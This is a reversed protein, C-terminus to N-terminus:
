SGGGAPRGGNLFAFQRPAWRALLIGIGMGLGVTLLVSAAYHLLMWGQTPAPVVSWLLVKLAAILPFHIAHLFFAFGGYRAITSGAASLAMSQFVGWCAMVGVLRMLKTALDLLPESDDIAYPALTRLTVLLLYAILLSLTFRPGIELPIARLRVLGGLYFFFLVDTRFFIWLDFDAIWVLALAVGTARPAFRLLIWLLPSVLVTVFLDRVFWFQFGIPHQTLAFVANIYQTPRATAFDINLDGLLPNGRDVTFVIWLLVVYLLNWLVLPVYLSVFRRRIRSSLETAARERFSFFLWGSVMSLLPVVSFFFFLVFSNIFTAVEFGDVDVGSFPSIAANPYRGYHLFVLGVILSIRSFSIIQSLDAKTLRSRNTELPSPLERAAIASATAMRIGRDRRAASGKADREGASAGSTSPAIEM